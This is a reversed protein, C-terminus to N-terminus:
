TYRSGAAAAAAPLAVLLVLVAWAPRRRRAGTM